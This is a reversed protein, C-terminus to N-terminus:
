DVHDKRDHAPRDPHDLFCPICVDVMGTPGGWRFLKLFATGRRTDLWRHMSYKRDSAYLPRSSVGGQVIWIYGSGSM